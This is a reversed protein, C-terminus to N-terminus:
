PQIPPHEIEWTVTKLMADDRRTTERYGLQTRLCTSDLSLHQTVDVDFELSKPVEDAAVEIIEGKWDLAKGVRQIWERLTITPEAVNFAHEDAEPNTATAVIADAVDDVYVFPGQWDAVGPALPLTASGSLMAEVYPRIRRQRDRPGYVMGLRLSSAPLTTPHALLINEVLIKDYSYKLDAEDSAMDRYPYMHERLPSSESIPAPIPPGDHKRRLRDYALYVDASSILVLRSAVDTFTEVLNHADKETYSIFDVVVDPQFAQFEPQYDPLDAHDGIIRHVRPPLEVHRAGRHFIAVDHGGALLRQVTPLGMFGVGGLLLVRM